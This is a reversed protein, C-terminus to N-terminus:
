RRLLSAESQIKEETGKFPVGLQQSLWDAFASAKGETWGWSVLDLLQPETNPSSCDLAPVYSFHQGSPNHSVRRHMSVAVIESRPVRLPERRGAAPPLLLSHSAQEIRLDYCGSSHRQAMWLFAALAVAAVLILVTFMLHLSPAFGAAFVLPFVAAFAAAALGFFGTALPSFDALRARTEGGHRFVRVGGAPRPRLQDRRARIAAGWIMVTVVNLPIAFLALLLDCGNLGPALVADAPNAPNYYVTQTSGAPFACSVAKYDFAGNRDDYRYRLGTYKVGNVVYSYGVDLGRRRAAGRGLESHMIEGTTTAFRGALVQRTSTELVVYDGTVLWATWIALLLLPYPSAFKRM